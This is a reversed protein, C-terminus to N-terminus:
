PVSTLPQYSLPLITPRRLILSPRKGAFAGKKKTPAAVVVNDDDDWLGKLDETEQEIQAKTPKGANAKVAPM